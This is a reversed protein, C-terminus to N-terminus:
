FRFTVGLQAHLNYVDNHPIYYTGADYDKLIWQYNLSKVHQMNATFLLNKYNWEGHLGFAMDVWKRSNGNIDRFLGGAFDTDHEYREFSVGLKKLGSVWSVNFNQM